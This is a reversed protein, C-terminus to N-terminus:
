RGRYRLGLTERNAPSVYHPYDGEKEKYAEASFWCNVTINWAWPDPGYILWGPNVESEYYKIDGIEPLRM